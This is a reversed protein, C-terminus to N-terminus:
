ARGSLISLLVACVGLARVGIRYTLGPQMTSTFWRRVAVM